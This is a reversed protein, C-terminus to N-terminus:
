GSAWCWRPGSISRHAPRVTTRRNGLVARPHGRLLRRRRHPDATRERRVSARLDCGDPDGRVAAVAALHDRHRFRHLLGSEGGSGRSPTGGIRVAAGSRPLRAPLPLRRVLHRQRQLRLLRHQGTRLAPDPDHGGAAHHRPSRDECGAGDQPQAPLDAGRRHIAISIPVNIYFIFQWNATGFVDLILSGASSGFINAVGYVGGVLGLAMGRKEVPVSTGFEATAIPVIGGGGIAQVARAAILM